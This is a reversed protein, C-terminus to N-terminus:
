SFRRGRRLVAFLLLGLFSPPLLHLFNFGAGSFVEVQQSCLETGGERCVRLIYRGPPPAEFVVEVSDTGRPPVSIEVTRSSNGLWVELREAWGEEKPNVLLLNVRVKGGVIYLNDSILRVERGLVQFRLSASSTNGVRDRAALSLFHWGEVLRVQALVFEGDWQFPVRQGDLELVISNEDVGSEDTIKVRVLVNESTTRLAPELFEFRPPDTDLASSITGVLLLFALLSWVKM